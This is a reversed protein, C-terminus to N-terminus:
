RQGKQESVCLKRVVQGPDYRYWWCQIDQLLPRELLPTHNYEKVLEEKNASFCM